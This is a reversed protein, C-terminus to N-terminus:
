GWLLRITRDEKPHMEETPYGSSANSYPPFDIINVDNLIVQWHLDGIYGIQDIHELGINYRGSWKQVHM